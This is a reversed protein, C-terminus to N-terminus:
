GADQTTRENYISRVLISIFIVYDLGGIFFIMWVVKLKVNHQQIYQRRAANVVQLPTHYFEFVFVPTCNSKTLTLTGVSFFTLGFSINSVYFIPLM